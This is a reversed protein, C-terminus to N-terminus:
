ERFWDPDEDACRGSVIIQDGPYLATIHDLMSITAELAEDPTHVTRSDLEGGANCLSVTIM